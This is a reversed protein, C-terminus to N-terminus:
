FMFLGYLPLRFNRGFSRDYRHGIHPQCHRTPSPVQSTLVQWILSFVLVHCAACFHLLRRMHPTLATIRKDALTVNMCLWASVRLCRYVLVGVGVCCSSLYAHERARVCVFLWVHADM